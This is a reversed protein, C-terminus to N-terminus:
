FLRVLSGERGELANQYLSLTQEATEKWTFHAARQKGAERLWSSRASDSIVKEIGEAISNVSEPDAYEAADGCIEPMSSIVSSLVPTGCRMAELLPLGFGEYLSVYIMLDAGCYLSALENEEVAERIEVRDRAPSKSLAELFPEYLWGKEGAVIWRHPFKKAVIKEFAQLVRLHNKRPELTGVTLLYPPNKSEVSVPEIHDSGLPIVAIRGPKAGLRLVLEGATFASPAILRRSQRIAWISRQKLYDATEESFFGEQLFAADHITAVFPTKRLPPYVFDTYHFLDMPGLFQEIGIGAVNQLLHLVRSPFRRRILKARTDTIGLESEKVIPKKWSHGFLMLDPSSELHAMARVLERTYRGIGSRKLLAPRYDLGIKVLNEIRRKEILVLVTSRCFM